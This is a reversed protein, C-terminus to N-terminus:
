GVVLESAMQDGTTVNSGTFDDQALRGQDAAGRLNSRGHADSAELSQGFLQIEFAFSTAPRYALLGALVSGAVTQLALQRDGTSRLHRQLVVERRMGGVLAHRRKATQQELFVIRVLPLLEDLQFRMALFAASRNLPTVIPLSHGLENRPEELAVAPRLLLDELHGPDHLDVSMFHRQRIRRIHGNVIHGRQDLM